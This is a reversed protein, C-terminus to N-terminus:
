NPKLSSLWDWGVQLQHKLTPMRLLYAGRRLWNVASGHFSINGLTTMTADGIGLSIFEGLPLYVFPTLPQGHIRAWINWACYQAQQYAAQATTPVLV